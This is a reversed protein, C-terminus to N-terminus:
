LRGDNLLSDDNGTLLVRLLFCIIPLGEVKFFGGLIAIKDMSIFFLIFGRTGSGSDNKLVNKSHGRDLYSPLIPLNSPQEDQQRLNKITQLADLNDEKKIM